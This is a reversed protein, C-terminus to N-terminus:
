ISIPQQRANEFVEIWEDPVEVRSKSNILEMNKDCEMYSHGRVPFTIMVLELKREIHVM